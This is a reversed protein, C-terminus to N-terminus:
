TDEPGYIRRAHDMGDPGAKAEWGAAQVRDVTAGMVRASKSDPISHEDIRGAVPGGSRTAAPAPGTSGEVRARDRRRAEGKGDTAGTLCRAAGTKAARSPPGGTTRRYMRSYSLQYLM